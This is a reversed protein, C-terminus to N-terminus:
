LATPARQPVASRRRRRGPRRDHRRRARRRSLGRASLYIPSPRLRSRPWARCGGAIVAFGSAAHRKNMGWLGVRLRGFEIRSLNPLMFAAYFDPRRVFFHDTADPGTLGDFLGQRACLGRFRGTAAGCIAPGQGGVLWLAPRGRFPRPRATGPYPAISERRRDYGDLQEAWGSEDYRDHHLTMALPLRPSLRGQDSPWGICLGALPIVREPLGLLEGIRAAHDRIVSIPCTGLGLAEAAAICTSLRWRPM